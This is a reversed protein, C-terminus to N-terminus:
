SKGLVIECETFDRAQINVKGQHLGSKVTLTIRPIRQNIAKVIDSREEKEKGIIKVRRRRM